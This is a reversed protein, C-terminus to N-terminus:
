CKAMKDLDSGAKEICQSYADLQKNAEDISKDVENVAASFLALWIVSIVLGVLGTVLGATAQGKKASKRGLVGFIIALPALIFAFVVALIGLVLAATAMGSRDNTAPPMPPQQTAVPPSYQPQPQDYSM